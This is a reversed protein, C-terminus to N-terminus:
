VGGADQPRPVARDQDARRRRPQRPRLGRHVAAGRRLARLEVQEERARDALVPLARAAAPARLARLLHSRLRNM